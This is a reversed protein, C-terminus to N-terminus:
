VLTEHVLWLRIYIRSQSLRCGRLHLRSHQAQTPKLQILHLCVEAAAAPFILLMKDSQTIGSCTATLQMFLFFFLPSCSSSCSHLDQLFVLHRYISPPIGKALQNPNPPNRDIVGNEDTYNAEICGPSNLLVSM